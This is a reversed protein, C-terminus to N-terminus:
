IKIFVNNLAFTYNVKVNRSNYDSNVPLWPTGATFGANVEGSWQMPTREADRGRPDKKDSTPIIGNVMGIEDGYYTFATGPLTMLLMSVANTYKDDAGM